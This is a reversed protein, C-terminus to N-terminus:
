KGAASAVPIKRRHSAPPVSASGVSVSGDILQVSDRGNMYWVHTRAHTAYSLARTEAEVYTPCAFQPSRRSYVVFRLGDPTDDRVIVADGDAVNSPWQVNM